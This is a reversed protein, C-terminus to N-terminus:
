HQQKLFGKYKEKKDKDEGWDRSFKYCRWVEGKRSHWTILNCLIYSEFHNRESWNAYLNGRVYPYLINFKKWLQLMKHEWWWHFSSDSKGVDRGVM